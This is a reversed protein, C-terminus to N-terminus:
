KQVITNDNKLAGPSRALYRDRSLVIQDLEVGDERVIVRIMSMGAPLSVTVPQKLWWANDQWGWNSMGCGSCNELNVLLGDTSGLRYVERGAVAAQSFQVWVSDNWKIDDQAKLRLWIHYQGAEPVIPFFDAYGAEVINSPVQETSSFGINRSSLKQGGAATPDPVLALNGHRRDSAYLVVDAATSSVFGYVEIEWLSYGWQTGRRTGTMLVYRGAAALGAHDDVGGDGNVVQRVMRWTQADDSVSLTYDRGFATEWRLVIRSIDIRSRLDVQIWQPDSFASSWRTQLNGDAASAAPYLRPDEYSSATVFAGRAVNVAGSPPAPATVSTGYVELEWLSYGWPTARSVGLIRVYRGVTDLNFRNDVGGPDDRVVSGTPAMRVPYWSTGNESMQIEYSSAYATEWHLVVRDVRYRQALDIQIWQPDSFQSSWRTERDGDVAASAPYGANELSSATAPRGRAINVKGVDSFNLKAIFSDTAGASGGHTQQPANATVPFDLSTTIGAVYVNDQDDVAIGHPWDLNGFPEDGNLEARASERGQEDIRSIWVRNAQDDTSGTAYVVGSDDVDIAELTTYGSYGPGVGRAYVFEGAANLKVVVGNTTWGGDTSPFDEYSGTLV